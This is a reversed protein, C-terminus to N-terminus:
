TKSIKKPNKSIIFNQHFKQSINQTFSGLHEHMADCKCKLWINMCKLHTIVINFQQTSTPKSQALSMINKLKCIVHEHVKM